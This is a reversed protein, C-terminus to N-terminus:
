GGYYGLLDAILDVSGGTSALAVSSSKIGSVVLGSVVQRPVPNLYSTNPRPFGTPYATVAAPQTANTGTLAFAVGTASSPVGALTVDLPRSAVLPAYASAWGYRTDLVRRPSVPTFRSGGGTVFFGALDAVVDTAASAHITVTGGPGVPVTALNAVTGGAAYNLNSTGPRAAGGAYATLFGDGQARTATLNLNVARTGAPLGGITLTLPRSPTVQQVPAGLGSRTDLVRRFSGSLGASSGKSYYGALDAILHVGGGANRLTIAGGAGIGVTVATATTRGPSTSLVSSSRPAQGAPYAAISTNASAATTTLNVTVATVDAPLGAPRITVAGWPALLGRPAGVGSRTDIFRRAAVPTYKGAVGVYQGARWQSAASSRIAAVQPYASDGPCSTLSLDRHGMVRPKTVWVGSAYRTSGGSQLRVTSAPDFPSRDAEWAIVRAVSSQVASPFKVSTFDGIVSVGFTSHNFGGSQAGQTFGSISGKRGEYIRGYRDVLFNYGIDCWGRSQTHFAFIARMLAPAQAATYSNTDVTHHVVAAKFGALRDPQCPMLREDAGWQARTVIAPPSVSSTSAAVAQVAPTTTAATTDLAATQVTGTSAAATRAPGASPTATAVPTPTLTADSPDSGGDVVTLTLDRPVAGAKSTVRVDIGDSGAATVAASGAKQRRAEVSGPDPGDQSDIDVPRWASWGHTDRTRVEVALGNPATGSFSVGAVDFPVGLRTTAAALRDGSAPAAARKAAAVAPIPLRTVRPPVAPGRAQGVAPAHGVAPAQDVALAAYDPAGALATPRDPPAAVATGACLAAGLVVVVPAALGAGRLRNGWRGTRHRDGHDTHASPTM